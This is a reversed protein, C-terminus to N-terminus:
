VVSKRDRTRAAAIEIALPLGDLRRCLDVAAELDALPPETGADRCRQLFLEVPPSTALDDGPQPLPLPALAIVTEGPLELPSRSTALVTPQLCAGLVRAVVAATADLLHECNDILVLAPHDAPSAILADFSDFGLQAALAGSVAAPDAVRTLDVVHVGQPFRDGFREAAAHAL